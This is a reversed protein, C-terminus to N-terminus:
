KVPMSVTGKSTALGYGWRKGDENYFFSLSSVTADAFQSMARLSLLADGSDYWDAPLTFGFSESLVNKQLAIADGYVIVEFGAKREASGFLVQWEGSMGGFTVIGLSRISILKADASWGRAVPLAAEYAGKITLIARASVARTEDSPNIPSEYAGSKVIRGENGEINETNPIVLEEEVVVGQPSFTHDGGRMAFWAVVALTVIVVGGLIFIKSNQM